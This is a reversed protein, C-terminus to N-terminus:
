NEAINDIAINSAAVVLIPTTGNKMLQLIIEHITSTKGTGPPGQIITIDNDLVHNIADKQSGNLTSKTYNLKCNESRIQNIQKNGLLLKIFNPNSFHNIPNSLFKMPNLLFNMSDSLPKMSNLIRSIPASCPIISKLNSGSRLEDADNWGHLNFTMTIIPANAGGTLEEVFVEWIKTDTGFETTVFFSQNNSFPTARLHRFKFPILEKIKDTYPLKIFVQNMTDLSWESSFETISGTEITEELYLHYCMEKYYTELSDYSLKPGISKFKSSHEFEEYDVNSKSKSKPKSKKGRSGSNNDGHRGGKSGDKDLTLMHMMGLMHYVFDDSEKKVITKGRLGERNICDGCYVFKTDSADVELDTKKQCSKCCLDNIKFYTELNNFFLGNQLSDQTTPKLKQRVVCSKCILLLKEGGIRSVTLKHINDDQCKECKVAEKPKVRGISRHRLVSLHKLMEVGDLKVSCGNCIYKVM